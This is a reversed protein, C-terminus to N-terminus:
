GRDKVIGAPVSAVIRTNTRPTCSTVVQGHGKEAAAGFLPMTTTPQILVIGCLIRGPLTLARKLDPM